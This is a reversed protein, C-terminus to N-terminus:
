AKLADRKVVLDWYDLDLIVGDNYTKRGPKKPHDVKLEFASPDDLKAPDMNKLCVLRLRVAGVKAHGIDVTELVDTFAYVTDGSFLPATHSGANIGCIGVRNELGNFSMAYGLSIPVGGYILPKGDMMKADFHVKSSNQFLRTFSMHDSHNVAMGDYHLIREGVTYDEFGWCGGTERVTPIAGESVVLQEPSVQSPMEPIVEREAWETPEASKKKIMVWRFFTLVIDGDQNTATNEVWVIGTKGSSNEKLGVIKLHMKLTDGLKVPDHWRIGAYGLNARANLSIQRVTQGFVVHFTVLPHVYGSPGCYVPTRDGTLAIYTSIDGSTVTRPVPCDLEQELAFDEFFNGQWGKNEM